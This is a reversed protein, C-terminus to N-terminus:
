VFPVEFNMTLRVLAARDKVGLKVMVRGRYTEITKRSLSLQRGIDASTYGAVVRRLVDRERASLLDIPNDQQDLLNNMGTLQAIAPSIYRGGASVTKIAHILDVSDASKLVYGRAGARLARQVHGPTKSSSLVIVVTGPSQATILATADIGNLGPLLLDMVVVDPTLRGVAQVAEEGSAASGVVKMGADFELMTAIGERVIAHDDVLLIRTAPATTPARAPEPACLLPNLEMMSKLM